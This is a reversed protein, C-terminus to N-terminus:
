SELSGGPVTSDILLDQRPAQRREAGRFPSRLWRLARVVYHNAALLLFRLTIGFYVTLNVPFAYRRRLHKRHFLLMARHFHYNM